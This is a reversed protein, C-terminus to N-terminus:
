PIRTYVPLREARTPINYTITDKNQRIQGNQPELALTRQLQRYQSVNKLRSYYTTTMVAEFEAQIVNIAYPNLV